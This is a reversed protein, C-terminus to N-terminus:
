PVMDPSRFNPLSWDEHGALRLEECYRLAEEWTYTDPATEKEWMLGTRTDTVTGDKNDIFRGEVRGGASEKGE